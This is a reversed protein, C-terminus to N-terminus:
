SLWNRGHEEFTVKNGFFDVWLFERLYKCYNKDTKLCQALM